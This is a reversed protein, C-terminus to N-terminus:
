LKSAWNNFYEIKEQRTMTKRKEWNPPLTTKFGLKPGPDNPMEPTKITSSFWVWKELRNTLETRVMTTFQAMINRM